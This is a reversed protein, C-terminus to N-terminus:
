SFRSPSFMPLIETLETVEDNLAQAAAEGVSWCIGLGYGTFGVACWLSPDGGVTGIIPLGDRSFGMLGSWRREIRLGAYQPYTQRYFTELAAQVKPNVEEEFGREGHEDAYRCGGLILRGDGTWHWYDYGFNVICAYPPIRVESPETALIQGRTPFVLNEFAPDIMPTYANTALIAVECAMEGGEYVIKGPEVTKVPCNEVIVAGMRAAEAGIFRTLAVPNVTADYADFKGMAFRRTHIMADIRDRDVLEVEFGDRVMEASAEEIKQAEADNIALTLSGVQQYALELSAPARRLLGDMHEQGLRKFRLTKYASEEGYQQKMVSYFDATELIVQGDNRGSAGAALRDKELLCCAIGRSALQYAISVGTLGGGVVAVDIRDPPFHWLSMM